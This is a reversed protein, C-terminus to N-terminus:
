EHVDIVKDLGLVMDASISLYGDMIIKNPKCLNADPDVTNDILKDPTKKPSM